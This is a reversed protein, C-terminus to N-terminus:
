KLNLVLIDNKRLLLRIHMDACVCINCSYKNQVARKDSFKIYNTFSISLLYSFMALSVSPLIIPLIELVIKWYKLDERYSWFARIEQRGKM